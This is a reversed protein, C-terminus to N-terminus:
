HRRRLLTHLRNAMLARLRITTFLALSRNMCLSERKPKLDQLQVGLSM